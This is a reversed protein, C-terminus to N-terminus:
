LLYQKYSALLENVFKLLKEIMIGINSINNSLSQM